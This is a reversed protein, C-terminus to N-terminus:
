VLWNTFPALENILHCQRNTHEKRNFSFQANKKNKSISVQM